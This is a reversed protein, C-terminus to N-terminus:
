QTLHKNLIENVRTIEASAREMKANVRELTELAYQEAVARDYIRVGDIYCVFDPEPAPKVLFFVGVVVAAAALWVGRPSGRHM